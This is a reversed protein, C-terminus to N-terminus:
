ISNRDDNILLGEFIKRTKSQESKIYNKFKDFDITQGCIESLNHKWIRDTLGIKGLLDDLRGNMKEFGGSLPLSVFQRNYILSFVICHFSNTIVLDAKSLYGLWEGITAYTKEYTDYRGQSCVYVVKKGISSAYQEIEDITCDTPNGLLYVFIYNTEDVKTKIQNYDECTLLLTPDVVKTAYLFGLRHCLNVGDEERIGLFSFYSLERKIMNETEKPFRNEGGFSPAYAIRLKSKPAFSLYFIDDNKWIQDSGCVFADAIPPNALLEEKTYVETLDVNDKLFQSFKRDVNKISTAYAKNQRQRKRNDFFWKIYLTLNQIYHFLKKLKFSAKPTPVQQYQILFPEHGLGKLFKQMAYCQLIQGYNDKTQSFTIVGIKM